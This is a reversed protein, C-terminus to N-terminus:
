GGVERASLRSDVCGVQLPAGSGPKRRGWHVNRGREEVGETGQRGSGRPIPPPPVPFSCVEGGPAILPQYVPHRVLGPLLSLIGLSGSSTLDRGGVELRWSASCRFHLLSFSVPGRNKGRARAGSAARWEGWCALGSWTHAAHPGRARAPIPPQRSRERPPAHVTVGGAGRQRGPGGCGM